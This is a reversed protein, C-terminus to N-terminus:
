PDIGLNQIQELVQEAPARVQEFTLPVDFFECTAGMVEEPKFRAVKGVKEFQALFTDIPQAEAAANQALAKTIGYQWVANDPDDVPWTSRDIVEHGHRALVELVFTACTLGDGPACKLLEGGDGFYSGLTYDFSYPIKGQSENHLLALFAVVANASYEDLFEEDNAAYGNELRERIYQNHTALHFLYYDGEPVGVVFALHRQGGRGTIRSGAIAIKLHVVSEHKAQVQQLSVPM